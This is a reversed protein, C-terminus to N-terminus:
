RPEEKATHRVAKANLDACAKDAAARDTYAGHNRQQRDVIRWRNPGAPVVRYEPGPAPHQPKHSAM